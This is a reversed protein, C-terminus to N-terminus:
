NNLPPIKAEGIYKKEGYYIKFEKVEPPILFFTEVIISCKETSKHDVLRAMGGYGFVFPYRSKNTEWGIGFSSLSNSGFKAIFANLEIPISVPENPLEGKMKVIIPIVQSDRSLWQWGKPDGKYVATSLVSLNMGGFRLIPYLKHNSKKNEASAVGFFGTVGVITLCTITLLILSIKILNRM